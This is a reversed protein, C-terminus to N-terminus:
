KKLPVTFWFSYENGKSRLGAKGGQQEIIEKVLSLGLGSGGSDRSRSSDVRYFREFILSEHEEPIPQGLNKVIIQYNSENQKGTIEVWGGEDYQLVNTLLNHLVQKLGDEDGVVEAAETKLDIIVGSNKFELSFHDVCSEILNEISLVNMKNENSIKKGQWVNLQHLQEVLRTIRISEEHISEFLEKNGQIVGTSLAELYGNINTLPTRLEHSIDSLMKKRLDEVLKLKLSLQNFDATLLGIEDHVRISLPNPMEGQALQRTAHGLEKLPLILKKVFFYHIFAAILVATLSAKILFTQMTQNFIVSEGPTVSPSNAFLLCAYDKVSVGAFWIAIGIVAVNILTFKWMINNQLLNNKFRLM